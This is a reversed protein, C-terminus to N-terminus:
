IDQCASYQQRWGGAGSWGHDGEGRAQFSANHSAMKEEFSADTLEKALKIQLWRILRDMSKSFVAAKGTPVPMARPRFEDDFNNVMCWDDPAPLKEAHGSVIDQVITRKGSGEPGTVFINYGTQRMNLGLNIARVAREQGIVEDLPEIEVTSEFKFMGPDCIKRLESIPLAEPATM